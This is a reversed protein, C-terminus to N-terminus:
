LLASVTSELGSVHVRLRKYADSAFFLPYPPHEWWYFLRDRGVSNQQWRNRPPVWVWTRWLWTEVISEGRSSPRQEFGGFTGQQKEARQKGDHIRNAAAGDKESQRALM